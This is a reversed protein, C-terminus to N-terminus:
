ASAAYIDIRMGDNRTKACIDIRVGYSVFLNSTIGMTTSVCGWHRRAAKVMAAFM